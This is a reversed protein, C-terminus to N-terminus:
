AHSFVQGNMLSTIFYKYFNKNQKDTSVTKDNVFFSIENNCTYACPYHKNDDHVFTVCPDPDHGTTPVQAAGTGFQLINCIKLKGIFNREESTIEGDYCGILSGEASSVLFVCSITYFCSMTYFLIPSM